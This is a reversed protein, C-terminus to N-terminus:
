VQRGPRKTLKAGAMFWELVKERIFIPKKGLKRYIDQPIQKYGIWSYVTGVKVHFENAFDKVTMFNSQQLNNM